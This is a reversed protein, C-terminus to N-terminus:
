HLGIELILQWEMGVKQERGATEAPVLCIQRGKLALEFIGKRPNVTPFIGEYILYSTSEQTISIRESAPLCIKRTVM